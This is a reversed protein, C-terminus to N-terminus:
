MYSSEASQKAEILVILFLANAALAQIYSCGVYALKISRTM